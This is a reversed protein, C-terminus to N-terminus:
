RGQIRRACCSSPKSRAGNSASERHRSSSTARGATAASSPRTAASHLGDDVRGPELALEAGSIQEEAVHAPRIRVRAPVQGARLREHEPRRRRHGVPGRDLRERGLDAQPQAAVADGALLPEDEVVAAVPDARHRRRLEGLEGAVRPDGHEEAADGGPRARDLRTLDLELLHAHLPRRVELGQRRAVLQEGAELIRLQGHEVDAAGLLVRAAGARRAVRALAPDRARAM